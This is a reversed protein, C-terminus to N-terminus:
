GDSDGNGNYDIFQEAYEGYRQYTGSMNGITNLGTLCGGTGIQTTTGTGESRCYYLKSGFTSTGLSGGQGYNGFGSPRLYHGTATQTNYSKRNWYEEYDIIGGEKIATILNESFFYLEELLVVKNDTKIRAISLNEVSLLVSTMILSFITMSLMLEFITFGKHNQLLKKILLSTM